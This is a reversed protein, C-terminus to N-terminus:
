GYSVVEIEVGNEERFYFRRGPEYDAHLHPAYGQARVKKETEDLDAVVVGVHNFHGSNGPGNGGNAPTYLALYSAPSGVHVTYGDGNQSAGQWRVQWGFIACLKEGTARADNVTLNVHEMEAM